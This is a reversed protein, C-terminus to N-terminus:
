DAKLNTYYEQMSPWYDAFDPTPTGDHAAAFMDLYYEWGPGTHAVSDRDAETFHQIFRLETGGDTETLVAELLWSGHDDVSSVALRRPPECADITMPMWPQEEEHVMQVEITRGTGPEGKWPGFWRATRESDTLSAWVDEVGARFARTLVLDVGTETGFLRGAPTSM